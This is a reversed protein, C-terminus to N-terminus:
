RGDSRRNNSMEESRQHASASTGRLLSPAPVPGLGSVEATISRNTHARRTTRGTRGQPAAAPCVLACGQHPGRDWTAGTCGSLHAIGSALDPASTTAKSTIVNWETGNLEDM